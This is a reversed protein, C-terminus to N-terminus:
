VNRNLRGKEFIGQENATLILFEKKERNQFKVEGQNVSIKTVEEKPYARLNFHGDSTTLLIDETQVIFSNNGNQVVQFDAEGM